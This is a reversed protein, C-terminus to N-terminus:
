LVLFTVLHQMIICPGFVFFCCVIPAVNSFSDIISGGGKIPSCIIEGPTYIINVPFKKYWVKVFLPSVYEHVTVSHRM